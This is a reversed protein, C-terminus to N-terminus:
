PNPIPSPDLTLASETRPVTGKHAPQTKTAGPSVLMNRYTGSISCLCILERSVPHAKGELHGPFGWIHAGWSKRPIHWGLSGLTLIKVRAPLLTDIHLPM